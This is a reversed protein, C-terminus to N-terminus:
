YKDEMPMFHQYPHACAPCKEPPEIGEFIYGCVLCQWEIPKSRKWTTGDEIEKALKLFRYRHHMEISAIARFRGAIETFGEEEAIKAANTYAEVGETEEEHAAVKLNDLTSGIIGADVSTPQATVNGETLFELFIKGHRLENAATENFINAIQFYGDKTAKNAFYQYRTVAMSEGIYANALQVETRTGKLSKAM